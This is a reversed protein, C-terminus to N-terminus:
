KGKYFKTGIVTVSRTIPVKIAGDWGSGNGFSPLIRITWYGTLSVKIPTGRQPCSEYSFCEGAGESSVASDNLKLCNTDINVIAADPDDRLVDIQTNTPAVPMWRGKEDKDDSMGKDNYVLWIPANQVMVKLASYYKSNSNTATGDITDLCNEEAVMSSITDLTDDMASSVVSYSYCMMIIDFAMVALVFGLLGKAVWALRHM